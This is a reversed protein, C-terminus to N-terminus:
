RKCIKPLDYGMFLFKHPRRGNENKKYQRGIVFKEFDDELLLNKHSRKENEFQPLTLDNEM